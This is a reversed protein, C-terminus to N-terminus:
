IRTKCRRRILGRGSYGGRGGSVRGGVRLLRAAAYRLAQESDTSPASGRYPGKRPRSPVLLFCGRRGPPLPPASVPGRAQGLGRGVGGAVPWSCRMCPRRECLFVAGSGPPFSAILSKFFEGLASEARGEHARGVKVDKFVKEIVGTEDIIYTTRFIGNFKEGFLTKEGNRGRLKSSILGDPDALLTFDLELQESFKKHSVRTTPSQRRNRDREEKQIKQLQKNFDRAEATCGPTNDKPYSFTSCWRRARTNRSGTCRATKM